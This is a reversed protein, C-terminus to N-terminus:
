EAANGHIRDSEGSDTSEVDNDNEKKTCFYLMEDTHGFTFMIKKMM